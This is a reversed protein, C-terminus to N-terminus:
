NTFPETNFVGDGTAELVVFDEADCMQHAAPLTIEKLIGVFKQMQLSIDEKERRYTSKFVFIGNVTKSHACQEILNQYDINTNFGIIFRWIGHRLENVSSLNKVADSLSKRTITGKVEVVCRVAEPNIVVIVGSKFFPGYEAANYVIIDCERSTKGEKSIIVGRGVAFAEPVNERILDRIIAEYYDGIVRQDKILSNIIDRQMIVKEQIKKYYQQM